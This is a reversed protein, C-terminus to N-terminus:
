SVLDELGLDHEEELSAWIKVTTGEGPRTVIELRGNIDRVRDAMSALGYGGNQGSLRKPDFGCGDDAVTLELGRPSRCYHVQVTSAKAHRWVNHLAEQFVRMVQVKVGVEPDPYETGRLHMAVEIGSRVAFEEAYDDLVQVLPRTLSAEAHGLECLNDRVERYLGQVTSNIEELDAPSIGRAETVSRERLQGLRMALYGIEQALTDHIERHLRERERAAARAAMEDGQVLLYAMEALSRLQNEEGPWPHPAEPALACLWGWPEAAPGIRHRVLLYPEGPLPLALALAAADSAVVRDILASSIPFAGQRLIVLGNGRLIFGQKAGVVQLYNALVGGLKQRLLQEM